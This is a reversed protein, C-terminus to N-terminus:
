GIEPNTRRRWGDATPRGSKSNTTSVVDHETERKDYKGSYTPTRSKGDAAVVVIFASRTEDPDLIV